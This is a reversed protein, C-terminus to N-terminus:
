KVYHLINVSGCIIASMAAAGCAANGMQKFTSNTKYNEEIGKLQNKDGAGLSEAESKTLGRSKVNQNQLRDTAKDATHRFAKIQAPDGNRAELADAKATTHERISTTRVPESEGPVNKYAPNVQDEPGLLSDMKEYKTQGNRTAAMQSATTEASDYYKSQSTSIVKDDRAIVIDALDNKQLRAGNWELENWGHYRDTLARSGDGKLIADLNYTEAHFEEAIFGSKVGVNQNNAIIADIHENGRAIIDVMQAMERRASSGFCPHLYGAQAFAQDYKKDISEDSM